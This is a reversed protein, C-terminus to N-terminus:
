KVNKMLEALRQEGDSDQEFGVAGVLYRGKHAVIIKGQYPDLGSLVDPGFQTSIAEALRGEKSLHEKFLKMANLADQSNEFVSLFLSFERDESIKTEGKKVYSAKFGRKLFERGLLGNPFYEISGPKLGSKPFYGIEKPPSSNDSIRSEIEQALQKLISPNSDTAQLAVFYKGKYFFAYRDELYSDLGIGASREEQRFRSFVGFAQLSNGMDYIDLDIKDESSNANRYVAFVSGEFGYQLFLDAQGDIHEFLTEKTFTEPASRLAWENPANKPVLSEMTKTESSANQSPVLVVLFLFIILAVRSPAV